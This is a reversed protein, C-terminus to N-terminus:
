GKIINQADTLPEGQSNVIELPIDQYMLSPDHLILTYILFKDAQTIKCDVLMKSQEETLFENIKEDIYEPSATLLFRFTKFKM